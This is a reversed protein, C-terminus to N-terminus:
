GAPAAEAPPLVITASPDFVGYMRAGRVPGDGDDAPTEIELPGLRVRLRGGEPTM